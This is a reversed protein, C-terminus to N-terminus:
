NKRENSELKMKAELHNLNDQCKKRLAIVQRSFTGDQSILDESLEYAQRFMSACDELSVGLEERFKSMIIGRTQVASALGFARKCRDFNKYAENCHELAAYARAYRESPEFEGSIKLNALLINTNAM